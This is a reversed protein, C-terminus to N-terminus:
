LGTGKPVFLTKAGHENVFYINVKGRFQGRLFAFSAEASEENAFLYEVWTFKEGKATKVGVRLM